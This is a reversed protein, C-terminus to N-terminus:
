EISRPIRKGQTLAGLVALCPIAASLDPTDASMALLAERAIDRMPMLLASPVPAGNLPAKGAGTTVANSNAAGSPAQPRSFSHMLVEIAGQRLGIGLGKSAPNAGEAASAAGEATAPPALAWLEPTCRAVTRM